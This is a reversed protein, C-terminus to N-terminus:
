RNALAWLVGRLFAELEARRAKSLKADTRVYYSFNTDKGSATVGWVRVHYVNFAAQECARLAAHDPAIVLYEQGNTSDIM